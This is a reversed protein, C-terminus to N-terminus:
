QSSQNEGSSVIMCYDNRWRNFQWILRSVEVDNNSFSFGAIEPKSKSILWSILCLFRDRFLDCEFNDSDTGKSVAIKLNGYISQLCDREKGLTHHPLSLSCTALPLAVLQAM